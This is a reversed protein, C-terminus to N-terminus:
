INLPPLRPLHRGGHLIGNARFNSNTHRLPLFPFEIAVNLPVYSFAYACCSIPSNKLFLRLYKLPSTRSESYKLGTMLM